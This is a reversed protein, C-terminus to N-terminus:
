MLDFDFGAMGKALPKGLVHYLLGDVEVSESLVHTAVVAGVGLAGDLTDEGVHNGADLFEKQLALVHLYVV